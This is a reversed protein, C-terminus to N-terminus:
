ETQISRVRRCRLTVDESPAARAESTPAGTEGPHTRGQLRSGELPPGGAAPRGGPPDGASPEGRSGPEEDHGRCLGPQPWPACVQPSPASILYSHCCIPGCYRVCTVFSLASQRAKLYYTVKTITKIRNFSFIIINFFLTLIIYELVKIEQKILTSERCVNEAESSNPPAIKVTM